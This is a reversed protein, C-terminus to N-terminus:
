GVAEKDTEDDENKTTTFINPHFYIYALLIYFFESWEFPDVAQCFRTFHSINTQNPEIQNGKRTVIKTPQIQYMQIRM